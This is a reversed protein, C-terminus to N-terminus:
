WVLCVNKDGPRKTQLMACVSSGVQSTRAANEFEATFCLSLSPFVRNVNSTSLQEALKSVNIGDLIGDVVDGLPDRAALRDYEDPKLVLSVGVHICFFFSDCTHYGRSCCRLGGSVRNPAVFAVLARVM